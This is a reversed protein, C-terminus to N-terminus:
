DAKPAEGKKGGGETKWAGKGKEKGKAEEQISVQEGKGDILVRLVKGDKLVKVEFRAVGKKMELEAEFAKGGTKREAALIAEALSITAAQIATAAEQSEDEDGDDNGDDKNGDDKDNKAGDEQDGDDKDNKAGENKGDKEGNDNDGEATDGAALANGDAKEAAAVAAGDNAQIPPAGALALALLALGVFMVFRKDFM